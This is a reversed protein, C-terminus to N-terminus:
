HMCTEMIGAWTLLCRNSDVSWIWLSHMEADFLCLSGDQVLAEMDGGDFYDLLQKRYEQLQGPPAKTPDYRTCAFAHKQHCLNQWSIFSEGCNRCAPRGDVADRAIDLQPGGAHVIGHTYMEHRRLTCLHRFSQACTHCDLGAEALPLTAASNRSGPLLLTSRVDSPTLIM